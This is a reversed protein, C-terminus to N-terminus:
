GYRLDIITDAGWFFWVGWGIGVFESILNCLNLGVSSRKCLNLGEFHGAELWAQKNHRIADGDKVYELAWAPLPQQKLLWLGLLM